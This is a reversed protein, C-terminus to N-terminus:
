RVRVVCELTQGDITATVTTTGKGAREVLGTESITVIGSDASTWTVEGDYEKRTDRYKVKMQVAPDGPRLTFDSYNLYLESINIKPGGPVTVTCVATEGESEATIVASGEAVATVVGDEVTVVAEDSSTWVVIGKGGSATLTVQSGTELTVSSQSLALPATQTEGSDGTSPPEKSDDERSKSGGSLIIGIAAICLFFVCAAVIIMEMRSIVIGFIKYKPTKSARRRERQTDPGAM